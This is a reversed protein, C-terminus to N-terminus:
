EPVWKGKVVGVIRAGPPMPTIRNPWAPNLAQLLYTGDPEILLQKFTAKEEGDIKAIVMSRNRPEATPDIAIFEGPNYSKEGGPNHMSYGQVRLIFSGNGAPFPCPIWEEADGPQFNDVIDSWDGAQVWSILPLRGKTDASIVNYDPTEQNVSHTNSSGALLYDVTTKLLRALAPLKDIDPKSAGSEWESVSSAAIGFYTGVQAQTLGAAKRKEKIRDGLQMLCLRDNQIYAFGTSRNYANGVIEVPIESHVVFGEVNFFNYLCGAPYGDDSGM